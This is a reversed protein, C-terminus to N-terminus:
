AEPRSPRAEILQFVGLIHREISVISLGAQRILDEYDRNWDCNYFIGTQVDVDWDQFRGVWKLHSRGHDLLLIRGDIRCVRGMERLAAVPNPLVCLSNCEVVTDFSGDPLGLAEADLISLDVRRGLAKAQNRTRDLMGQSLDTAIIQCSSPYYPLNIGTGTAIELVKGSARALLRKRWKTFFLREFMRESFDSGYGPAYSDWEKGAEEKDGVNQV